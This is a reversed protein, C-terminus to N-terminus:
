WHAFDLTAHMGTRRPQPLEPRVNSSRAFANLTAALTSGIRRLLKLGDLKKRSYKAIKASATDAL